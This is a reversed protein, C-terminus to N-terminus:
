EPMGENFFIVSPKIPGKVNNKECSKCYIPQGRRMAAYFEENDYPAKCVACSAKDGNGHAEILKDEHIGSVLHLGDM